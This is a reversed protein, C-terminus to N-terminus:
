YSWISKYLLFKQWKEKWLILFLCMILWRHRSVWRDSMGGSYEISHLQKKKNEYSCNTKTCLNNLLSCTSFFFLPLVNLVEMILLLELARCCSKLFICPETNRLTGESLCSIFLSHSLLSLGPQQFTWTYFYVPLMGSFSSTVNGTEEWGEAGSENEKRM